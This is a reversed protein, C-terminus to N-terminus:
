LGIRIAISVTPQSKSIIVPDQSSVLRVTNGTITYTGAELIMSIGVNPEESVINYTGAELNLRYSGEQLLSVDQGTINYSGTDLNLSLTVPALISQGTISYSGTDLALTYATGGADLTDVSFDDAHIGTTPGMPGSLRFGGYGAASIASDTVSIVPTAEGENYLSITTGDAVVKIEKTGSTFTEAVSSGLQTATGSVVKYLQWGNASSHRGFYMTNASSSMRITLGATPTASSGVYVFNAKVAYDASPPAATNYCMGTSSSGGNRVRGEATTYLEEGANPHKIWNSSASQLTIGSTLTFDDSVINTM